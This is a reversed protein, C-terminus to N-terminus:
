NQVGPLVLPMTAETLWSVAQQDQLSLLTAVLESYVKAHYADIWAIEEADLMSIDILRRDIPVLTITEFGLMDKKDGPRKDEVVLVLREIRIGYKGQEYYGPENSIVMGPVLAAGHSAKGIRQPGEHVGLYSGVGHGTGHDYDLGHTWLARRAFGDLQGGTTGRPFRALALQIHGKLVLTHHHIMEASPEGIAVTCTVDTTGDIYQAGSDLLFLSNQQLKVASGPKPQYHVIAGNAGAGPITPFSLDRFLNEGFHNDWAQFLHGTSRRLEELTDAAEIETLEGDAALGELRSLFRVMALGDRRHANRMGDQETQNKCARPLECPDAGDIITAGAEVLQDHVWCNITSMDLQIREGKGLQRLQEPFADEPFVQVQDGLHKLLSRKIRNQELFLQCSGDATVIAYALVLPTYEVDKARINFLWCISAGMSLVTARIGNDALQKAIAARKEDASQGCYKLEQPVIRTCPRAPRDSWVADVPNSHEPSPIYDATISHVRCSQLTAGVSAAAATLKSRRSPTLLRPDYALKQGRQMNGRIWQEVPSDSLHHQECHPAQDQAQLTYRGDVFLAARTPTVIAWGASGTFNTAAALRGESDPTFECFFEDDHGIYFADFQRGHLEAQLNALLSRDTVTIEQTM